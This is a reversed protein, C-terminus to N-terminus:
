CEDPQADERQVKFRSVFALAELFEEVTGIFGSQGSDRISDLEYNLDFNYEVFYEPETGRLAIRELYRKEHITMNIKM